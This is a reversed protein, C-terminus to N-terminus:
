VALIVIASSLTSIEVRREIPTSGVVDIEMLGSLSPLLHDVYFGGSM